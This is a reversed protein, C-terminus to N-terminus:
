FRLTHNGQRGGNNLRSELIREINNRPLYKGTPNNPNCLFVARPRSKRIVAVVDDIEPSFNSKELARYKILRAGAIRVATEYEGYTPELILIPDRQRFYALAILRILETTGSGVLINEGNIELKKSLEQRLGFALSNPYREVPIDKMMEKIGPPPMFPNTSVSFDLVKEPNIGLSELEPYNIGGHPCAELRALWKKPRLPM